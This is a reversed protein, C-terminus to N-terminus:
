YDTYRILFRPRKTEIVCNGSYFGLYDTAADGNNPVEFYIKLQTNGETDISALGESNLSTSLMKGEAQPDGTETSFVAVNDATASAQFDSDELASSSGFYPSAVDIRCSGGWTFPDVGVLVGRTMAVHASSILKDEPVGSTDFSLIVRYG